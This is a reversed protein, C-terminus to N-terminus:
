ESTNANKRFQTPVVNYKSKFVTTFYDPSTYGVEYAIESINMSSNLLLTEAKKLRANQIYDSISQGLIAKVKRYLQSRSLQLEECLDTVYFDQRQYNAEVFAIFKNIFEKDLTNLQGVQNLNKLENNYTDKLIQRNHLLNTIREKLYEVNFPKTIYADAGMKIGEIQQEVTSRSSLLIIPIHSTRLDSKLAKTIELGNLGPLMIDCIILDPVQELAWQLGEEGQLIGEWKYQNAFKKRLFFQMDKNDEILLIQQEKSDANPADAFGPTAYPEVPLLYEEHMLFEPQITLIQDERLHKNGLPLHLTFRSGKGEKSKLKITGKHLQMLALSLSLGIGTGVKKSSDEQYFPEFVHKAEEEGIGKGSDEVKLLVLQEFNDVTISLHVKGGDETYKFANSLLNFLVKDLMNVDFWVQLQEYRSFLQFDINRREAIKYYSRMIHRVFALLDNESARVRMKDSEIKRFDMLQNVLRLLRYANQKILHVNQRDKGPITAKLDDVFGLILTLPTRLEHSINTFFNVKANTASKVQESMAIIEEQKELVEKNKAALIKNVEQKARLSRWLFGGLVIVLLLSGILISIFIQQNHYIKNLEEVKQIQQDISSQLSSVKQMQLQITRANNSDIVTTQLLTKRDFPLNNLIALSLRIAEVGGTPYLLSADLIGDEVAQIGRGTGPIGDVGVFFISDARGMPKAVEYAQEAILDTHSFIINVDPHQDLLAPLEQSVTVPYTTIELENVLELNPYSKLADRFGRNREIGPSTNPPIRLELVKGEGNYKNAIYHAATRGIEYNDGGIYATYRESDTKRDIMVVPIGSQFVEDVIATLPTSENPAVILLDIGEEVLERIQQVQTESNNNAVKIQFAIESHFNLERYMEAEMVDRWPDACCQSFGIRFKKEEQRTCSFLVLLCLALLIFLIRGTSKAMWVRNKFKGLGFTNLADKFEM